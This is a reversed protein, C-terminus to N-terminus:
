SNRALPAFDALHVGEAHYATHVIEPKVVHAKTVTRCRRTRPLVQWQYRLTNENDSDM